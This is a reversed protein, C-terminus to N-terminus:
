GSQSSRKDKEPLLDARVSAGAPGRARKFCGWQPRAATPARNLAVIIIIIIIIIDIIIIIIIIICIPSSRM